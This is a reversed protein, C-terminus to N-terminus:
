CRHVSLALRGDATFFSQLLYRRPASSIEYGFSHRAWEPAFLNLNNILANTTPSQPLSLSLSFPRTCPWPWNSSVVPHIVSSGILRPRFHALAATVHPVQAKCWPHSVLGRGALRLRGKNTPFFAM